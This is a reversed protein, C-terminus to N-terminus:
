ISLGSKSTAVKARSIHILLVNSKVLNFANVPCVGFSKIKDKLSFFCCFFQPIVGIGQNSIYCKIVTKRIWTIKDPTKFISIINSRSSISPFICVRLKYHKIYKRGSSIQVIQVKIRVIRNNSIMLLQSKQVTIM